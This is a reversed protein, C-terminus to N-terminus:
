QGRAQVEPPTGYKPSEALSAEATRDQAQRHSLTAVVPDLGLSRVLIYCAVAVLVGGFVRNLLMRHQSLRAALRAGFWGGGIGGVTYIMAVQWAVMDSVAYNAATMTSFAAVALLSSGIADITAMGSALILGPVILVGGGIGFFGALTGVGIGAAGLRGALLGSLRPRPCDLMGRPRQMVFAIVIMLLAFLALLAHGDTRKGVTSGAVAGIVGAITFVVACPWYVHGNRAHSALNALANVSVVLASTGIAVHADPVGAVYLLLPTALVSGGGGILGLTFGVLGGSALALIDQVFMSMTVLASM